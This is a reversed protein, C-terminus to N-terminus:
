KDNHLGGENNIWLKARKLREPNTHTLQNDVIHHALEVITSFRDGCDPCKVGRPYQKTM